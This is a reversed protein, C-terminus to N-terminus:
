HMLLKFFWGTFWIYGSPWIQGHFIWTLLTNECAFHNVPKTFAKLLHATVSTALSANYLCVKTIKLHLCTFYLKQQFSPMLAPPQSSQCCVRASWPFTPIQKGGGGATEARRDKKAPKDFYLVQDERCGHKIGRWGRKQRAFTHDSQVILIPARQKFATAHIYVGGGKTNLM